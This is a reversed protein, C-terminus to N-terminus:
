SAISPKVFNLFLFYDPSPLVSEIYSASKQYVDQIVDYVCSSLVNYKNKNLFRVWIGLLEKLSDNDPWFELENLFCSTIKILTTCVTKRSRFQMNRIIYPWIDVRNLILKLTNYEKNNILMEVILFFYDHDFLNYREIIGIFAEAFYHRYMTPDDVLENMNIVVIELIRLVFTNCKKFTNQFPLTFLFDLIPSSTVTNCYPFVHQILCKKNKYIFFMILELLCLFQEKQQFHQNKIDLYINGDINKFEIQSILSTIFSIFGFDNLVSQSRIFLDVNHKLAYFIEILFEMLAYNRNYLEKVIIDFNKENQIISFVLKKNEKVLYQCYVQLSKEDLCSILHYQLLFQLRLCLSLNFNKIAKFQFKSLLLLRKKVFFNFDIKERAFADGKWNNTIRIMDSYISFFNSSLIKAVLEM